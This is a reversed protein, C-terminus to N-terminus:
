EVLKSVESELHKWNLRLVIRRAHSMHVGIEKGIKEYTWGLDRLERARIVSSETIKVGANEIGRATLGNIAAHVKNEKNTAWELNSVINNTKCGDIHNVTAKNEKNPIFATAVLRHVTITLLSGNKWLGVKPYGYKDICAMKDQGKRKETGWRGGQVVRDISRVRGLNSVEYYGELGVVSKWIEISETM